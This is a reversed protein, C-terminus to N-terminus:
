IISSPTSKNRIKNWSFVFAFASWSTIIHHQDSIMMIIMLHGGQSSLNFLHCAPLSAASILSVTSSKPFLMQFYGSSVSTSHFRCCPCLSPPPPSSPRPLRGSMPNGASVIPEIISRLGFLPRVRRKVLIGEESVLWWGLSLGQSKLSRFTENWHTGSFNCKRWQKASLHASQTIQFVSTHYFDFIMSPNGSEWENKKLTWLNMCNIVRVIFVRCM